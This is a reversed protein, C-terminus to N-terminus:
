IYESSLYFITIIELLNIMFQFVFNIIFKSVIIKVPVIEFYEWFYTIFNPLSSNNGIITYVIITLINILIVMIGIYFMINWYNHYHIDIMYILYCLYIGEALSGILILLIEYWIFNSFYENYNVRIFDLGFFSLCFIIIGLYHHIFYKYKLIFKTLKKQLM